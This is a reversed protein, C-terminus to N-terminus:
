LSLNVTQMLKAQAIGNEFVKVQLPFVVLQAHFYGAEVPLRLHIM